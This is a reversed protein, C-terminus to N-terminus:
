KDNHSLARVTSDFGGKFYNGWWDTVGARELARRVAKVDRNYTYKVDGAVFAGLAYMVNAETKSLTLQIVEEEVKTEVTKTVTDVTAKAM